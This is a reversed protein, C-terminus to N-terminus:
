PALEIVYRHPPRILAVVNGPRDVIVAFLNMIDRGLVSIDLMESDSVGSFQGRFTAVGGDDRSLQIHTSFRVSDAGGGVGALREGGNNMEFGLLRVVAPSLITCDAGIDVLFLVQQRAGDANLVEGVIVPRVIGDDCEDWQGDIRM